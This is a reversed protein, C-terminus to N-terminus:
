GRQVPHIDRQDFGVSLQDLRESRGAVTGIARGLAIQQALREGLGHVQRLAIGPRSQGLGLTRHRQGMGLRDGGEDGLIPHLRLVDVDDAEVALRHQVAGFPPQRHLDAIRRREGLRDM